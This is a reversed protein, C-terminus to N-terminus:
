GIIQQIKPRVDLPHEGRAFGAFAERAAQIETAFLVQKDALFAALADASVSYGFLLLDGRIEAIFDDVARDEAFGAIMQFLIYDATRDDDSACVWCKFANYDFRSKASEGIPIWVIDETQIM